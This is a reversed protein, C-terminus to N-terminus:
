KIPISPIPVSGCQPIGIYDILFHYFYNFMFISLLLLTITIILYSKNYNERYKHFFYYSTGLIILAGTFIILIPLEKELFITSHLLSSKFHFLNAYVAFLVNLLIHPTLGTGCAYVSSITTTSLLIFFSQKIKM